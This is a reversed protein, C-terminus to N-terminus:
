RAGVGSASRFLERTEAGAERTSVVGDRALVRVTRGVNGGTESRRVPVGVAALAERVAAENRAGIDMKAAAPFSFMGAGGVLVAELQRRDAGRRELDAVLAPVARDAYKAAPGAADAPGAPLMIHALGALGRAADLLVLGICSGLGVSLLVAGGPESVALEGIRVSIESDNM